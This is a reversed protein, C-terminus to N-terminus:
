ATIKLLNEQWISFAKGKPTRINVCRNSTFRFLKIYYTENFLLTELPCDKLLRIKYNGNKLIEYSSCYGYKGNLWKKYNAEHIKMRQEIPLKTSGIYCQLNSKDQIIYISM